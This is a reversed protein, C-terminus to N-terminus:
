ENCFYAEIQAEDIEIDSLKKDDDGCYDDESQEEM